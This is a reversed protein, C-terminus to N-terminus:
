EVFLLFCRDLLIIIIVIVDMSCHTKTIRSNRGNLKLWFSLLKTKPYSHVDNKYDVRSYVALSGRRYALNISSINVQFRPQKLLIGYQECRGSKTLALQNHLFVRLIEALWLCSLIKLSYHRLTIADAWHESMVYSCLRGWCSHWKWWM